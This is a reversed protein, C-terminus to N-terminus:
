KKTAFDIGMELKSRVGVTEIKEEKVCRVLM